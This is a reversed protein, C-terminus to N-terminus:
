GEILMQMGVIKKWVLPSGVLENLLDGLTAGCPLPTGWRQKIYVAFATVHRAEERTQNAAYEQAGPDKLIHCLSASLALAGQEGHLLASIQWRAAENAFKIKQQPTMADGVRTAFIPFFNEPLITQATLDFPEDFAIYKN